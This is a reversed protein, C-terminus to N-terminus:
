QPLLLHTPFRRPMEPRRAHLPAPALPPTGLWRELVEMSNIQDSALLTLIGSSHNGIPSVFFHNDNAATTPVSFKAASWPDVEGYIFMMTKSETTVWNQIDKMAEGDWPLDVMKPAVNRLSYTDPYKILDKLYADDIGPTGLQTLAQYAYAEYSTDPDNTYQQIGSIAAFIDFTDRLPAGAKPLIPCAGPADVYQWFGFPVSRVADELAIDKGGYNDYQGTMLPLVDARQTLLTVQMAKLDERCTAFRDGGV